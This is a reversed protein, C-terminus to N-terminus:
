VVRRFQAPLVDSLSVAYVATPDVDFGYPYPRPTGGLERSHSRIMGIIMRGIRRAGETGAEFSSAGLM